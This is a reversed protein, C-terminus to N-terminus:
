VNSEGEIYNSSHSTRLSRILTELANQWAPGAAAGISMSEEYHDGPNFPDDPFIFEDAPLIYGLEDNALGIIAPVRAGADILARKAMLGLRPLLEGPNTALWVDGIAILTTETLVESNDDLINPLLGREMAMIFLPNTMPIAFEARAISFSVDRSSFVANLAAHGAQAIIRGMHDAAVFTREEVLPSLMGGLAGVFVLCPAASVEEMCQRLSHVYDSTIYPNDDWLVEPHCPFILLTALAREGAVHFQICTLDDDVITPDRFNQVVGPAPAHTSKVSELPAASRFAALITQIIRTKVM